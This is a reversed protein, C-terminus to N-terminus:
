FYYLSKVKRDNLNIGDGSSLGDETIENIANNDKLYNLTAKCLKELKKSIPFMDQSSEVNSVKRTVKSFTTTASTVPSIDVIPLHDVLAVSESVNCATSDMEDVNTLNHLNANIATKKESFDTYLTTLLPNSRFASEVELDMSTSSQSELTKAFVWNKKSTYMVFSSKERINVAHGRPMPNSLEKREVDNNNTFNIASDVPIYNNRADYYLLKSKKSTRENSKQNACEYSQNYLHSNQKPENINRYIKNKLYNMGRKLDEINTVHSSKEIHNLSWPLETYHPSQLFKSKQDDKSVKQKRKSEVKNIVTESSSSITVPRRNSVRRSIYKSPHREPLFKNRCSITNQKSTHLNKSSNHFFRSNTKIGSDFSGIKLGSKITKNKLSHREELKNLKKSLAKFEKEFKEKIADSTSNENEESEKADTLNILSKSRSVKNYRTSCWLKREDTNSEKATSYVSFSDSPLCDTTNLKTVNIFHQNRNFKALKCVESSEINDVREYPNTKISETKLGQSKLYNLYEDTRFDFINYLSETNSELKSKNAAYHNQYNLNDIKSSNFFENIKSKFRTFNENEIFDTTNTNSKTETRRENLITTSTNKEFIDKKLSDSLKHSLYVEMLLRQKEECEKQLLNKLNTNENSLEEIKQQLKQIHVKYSEEKRKLQLDTIKLRKVLASIQVKQKQVEDKTTEIFVRTPVRKKSVQSNYDM